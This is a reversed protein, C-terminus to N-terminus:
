RKSGPVPKGRPHLDSTDTTIVVVRSEPMEKGLHCESGFKGPLSVGSIDRWFSNVCYTRGWPPRKLLYESRRPTFKVSRILFGAKCSLQITLFVM